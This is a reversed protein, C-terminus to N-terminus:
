TFTASFVDNYSGGDPLVGIVYHTQDNADSYNVIINGSGTSHGTQTWPYHELVGDHDSDCIDTGSNTYDLQWAGRQTFSPNPFRVTDPAVLAPSVTWNIDFVQGAVQGQGPVMRYSLSGGWGTHPLVDAQVAAPTALVQISTALVVAPLLVRPWRFKRRM